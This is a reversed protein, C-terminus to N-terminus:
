PKSPKSSGYSQRVNGNQRNKEGRRMLILLEDNYWDKNADLYKCLAPSWAFMDIINKEWSEKESRWLAPYKRLQTALSDFYDLLYEATAYVRHYLPDNEGVEKGAYFYPRLQPENVFIADCTLNQASVSGFVNSEVSELAYKTQAVIVRNQLILLILTICVTVFSAVSIILKILESIHIAEFRVVSSRRKRLFIILTIIMATVSVVFFVILILVEAFSIAGPPHM